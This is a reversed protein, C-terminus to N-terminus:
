QPSGANKTVPLLQINLLVVDEPKNEMCVVKLIDKYFDRVKKKLIPLQDKSIGLTLSHVDRQEYHVQNLIQKSLDLVSQHYNIVAVSQVDDGTSIVSEPQEWQGESTKSIFGMRVLLEMSKQAMQSTIVPSINKALWEPSGNFKPNLMLERIVPHYWASYYDYKDQELPKINQIKQSKLLYQYHINKEKHIEAQNFLVLNYFYERERKNLNLGTAFKKIGEESLNRKGEMVLQLFNPAKFGAKLSFFRFSYNKCHAKAEMHWDRLYARYDLYQTINIDSKWRAM